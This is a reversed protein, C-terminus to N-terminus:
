GAVVVQDGLHGWVLEVGDVAVFVELDDTAWDQIVEDQEVLFEIRLEGVYVDTAREAQRDVAFQQDVSEPVAPQDSVREM